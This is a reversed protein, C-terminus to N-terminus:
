RALPKPGVVLVNAIIRATDRERQGTVAATHGVAAKGQLFREPAVGSQGFVIRTNAGVLVERVAGDRAAVTLVNGDIATIVGCVGTLRPRNASPTAPVSEPCVLGPRAPSTTGGVQVVFAKGAGGTVDVKAGLATTLGLLREASASDVSVLLHEGAPTEILVRARSGDASLSMSAITGGLDPRLEKLERITVRPPLPQARAGLAVTNAQVRRGKGVVGDVLIATGPTLATSDVSQAGDIVSTTDGLDVTVQGAFESALTLRGGDNETIVGEIQVYDNESLVLAAASDVGTFFAQSGAFGVIALVAVAAAASLAAMRHVFVWQRLGGLFARKPLGTVVRPHPIEVPPRQGELFREFRARAIPMTATAEAAAEIAANRLNLSSGLLRLLEERDEPSAEAPVEGRELAADLLADFRDSADM